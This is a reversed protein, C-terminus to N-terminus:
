KKLFMELDNSYSLAIRIILTSIGFEHQQEDFIRIMEALDQDSYHQHGRVKRIASVDLNSIYNVHIDFDDETVLTRVKMSKNTLISTSIHVNYNRLLRAMHLIPDSTERFMYKSKDTSPYETGIFGELVYLENLASRFFAAQVPEDPVGHKGSEGNIKSALYICACLRDYIDPFKKLRENPLPFILYGHEVKIHDLFNLNM